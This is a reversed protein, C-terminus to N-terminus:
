CNFSWEEAVEILAWDSTDGSVNITTSKLFTNEISLCFIYVPLRESVYPLFGRVVGGLSQSNFM